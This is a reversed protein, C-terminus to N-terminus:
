LEIWPRIPLLSTNRRLLLMVTFVAIKFAEYLTLISQGFFKYGELTQNMVTIAKLLTLKTSIIIKFDDGVNWRIKYAISSFKNKMRKQLKRHKDFSIVNFPRKRWLQTTKENNQTAITIKSGTKSLAYKPVSKAAILRLLNAARYKQNLAFSFCFFNM